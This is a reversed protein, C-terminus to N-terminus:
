IAFLLPIPSSYPSFQMIRVEVTKSQDVRTVSLCVSPCVSLRVSPRAIVYLASLTSDRALFVSNIREGYRNATQSLWPASTQILSIATRWTKSSIQSTLHWCYSRQQGHYHVLPCWYLNNSSCQSVPEWFWNKDCDIAFFTFLYLLLLKYLPTLSLLWKLAATCRCGCTLVISSHRRNAALQLTRRIAALMGLVAGTTFKVGLRLWYWNISSSRSHPQLGSWILAQHVLLCPVCTCLGRARFLGGPELSARLRCTAFHCIM